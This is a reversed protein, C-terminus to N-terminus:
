GRGLFLALATLALGALSILTARSTAAAKATDAAIRAAEQRAREREEERAMDVAAAVELKGIRGNQVGVRDALAHLALTVDHLKTLLDQFKLDLHERLPIAGDSMACVGCDGAICVGGLCAADHCSM